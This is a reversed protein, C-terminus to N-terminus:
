AIPAPTTTPPSIPVPTATPTPKAPLAATPAVPITKVQTKFISKSGANVSISSGITIKKTVTLTAAGKTGVKVTGLVITVLKGAVKGQTKITVTKGKLNDALDLTVRFKGGPLKTVKISNSTSTTAQPAALAPSAVAVSALPMLAVAMGIATNLLSRRILSLRKSSLPM